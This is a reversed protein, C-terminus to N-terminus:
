IIQRTRKKNVKLAPPILIIALKRAQPLLTKGSRRRQVLLVPLLGSPPFLFRVIPTVESIVFGIRRSARPIYGSEKSGGVSRYDDMVGSHNLSSGMHM